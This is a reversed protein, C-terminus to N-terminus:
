FSFFDVEKKKMELYKKTEEETKECDLKTVNKHISFMKWDLEPFVVELVRLIPAYSGKWYYLKDYVPSGTEKLIENFKKESIADMIVDDSSESEKSRTVIYKIRSGVDVQEGEEQQKIMMRVSLPLNGAYESVGKSVRAGTALDDFTPFTDGECLIFKRYDLIKVQAEELTMGTTLMQKLFEEQKVKAIPIGDSRKLELGKYTIKDGAIINGKHWCLNGAYRKKTNMFIMKSYIQEFDLWIKKGMVNAKDGLEEYKKHAEEVIYCGTRYMADVYEQSKPVYNKVPVLNSNEDFVRDLSIYYSDTDMYVPTSFEKCFPNNRPHDPPLEEQFRKCFVDGQDTEFDTWKKHADTGFLHKIGETLFYQGNLTVSEVLDINYLISSKLGLCGYISLGKAKWAYELSEAVAFENTGIKGEEKLKTQIAKYYNRMKKIIGFMRPLHGSRDKRYRSGNISKTYTGEPWKEFEEPPIFTSICINFEQIVSPYLSGIDVAIMNEYFGPNPPAVFAGTAKDKGSMQKEEFSKDPVRFYKHDHCMKLFDRKVKNYNGTHEYPVKSTKCINLYNKVFGQKLELRLMIEVDRNNYTELLPRNTDWLEFITETHQIKSMGLVVKAVSDLAFSMSEDGRDSKYFEKYILMQDILYVKRWDFQIGYLEFRKKIYVFDFFKGNWALIVDAKDMVTKMRLLMSYEDSESLENIVDHHIAKDNNAFEDLFGHSYSLIHYKGPVIKERIRDDTEIDMAMIVLESKYSIDDTEIMFREEQGINGEYTQIGLNSLTSMLYRHDKSKSQTIYKEPSAKLHYPNREKWEKIEQQSYNRYIEQEENWVEWLSELSRRTEPAYENNIDLLPASVPEGESSRVYTTHRNYYLRVFGKIEPDIEPYFLGTDNEYDDIIKQSPTNDGEVWLVYKSIDAWMDFAVLKEYDSLSILVYNYFFMRKVKKGSADSILFKLVDGYKQNGESWIRLINAKDSETLDTKRHLAKYDIKM